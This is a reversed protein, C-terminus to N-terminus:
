LQVGCGNALMGAVVRATIWEMGVPHMRDIVTDGTTPREHAWWGGIRCLVLRRGRLTATLRCLGPGHETSVGLAGLASVLDATPSEGPHRHRGTTPTM